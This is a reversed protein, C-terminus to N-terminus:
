GSAFVEIARAAGAGPVPSRYGLEALALELGALATVIDFENMFGMHGIRMIRGRLKGQGGALVIGHRDRLVSYCEQGDIGDPMLFATVMASTENDPGYLDLGLAKVGERAGHALRRNHAWVAEKGRAEILELAKHLAAVITVAPTFATDNKAQSDAAVRWSLYHRPLTARDSQEWARPSVSAFALGPPCMLAKQSGAVAVDVGWADVALEVGGLSSVADVVVLAGTPAVARAIAEIDHVVGTSTESQTVYVAVTDAEGAAETIRGPDLREGWEHDVHIPEIGYARALKLWREGFNGASAVVIRDGPSLLNAIASEMAATGSGTFLLVDHETEFVRQLRELTEGLLARFDPSRHHHLPASEAAVVEPPVPTPGPTILYRKGDV